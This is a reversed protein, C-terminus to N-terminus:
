RGPGMPAEIRTIRRMIAQRVGFNARSGHYLHVLVEYTGRKALVDAVNDIEPPIGREAGTVSVSDPSIVHLTSVGSAVGYIKGSWDLQQRVTPSERRRTLWSVRQRGFTGPGFRERRVVRSRYM